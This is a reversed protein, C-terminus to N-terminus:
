GNSGFDILHTEFMEIDLNTKAKIRWEDNHIVNQPQLIGNLCKEDINDDSFQHSVIQNCSEKSVISM